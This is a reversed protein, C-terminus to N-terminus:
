SSYKTSSMILSTICIILSYNLESEGIGQRCLFVGGKLLPIINVIILGQIIEGQKTEENMFENSGKNQSINGM